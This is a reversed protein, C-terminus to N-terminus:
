CVTCRLREVHVIDHPAAPDAEVLKGNEVIPLPLTISRRLTEGPPLRESYFKIEEALFVLPPNPVTGFHLLLLRSTCMSM